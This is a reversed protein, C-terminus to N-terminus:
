SQATLLGDLQDLQMESGMAYVIDNAIFPRSPDPHTHVPQDSQSISVIMAGGQRRLDLDRLSKGIIPSDSGVTYRRIRFATSPDRFLTDVFEGLDPHTAYEAIKLGGVLEPTVVGRAGALQLKKETQRDIARAYVPIDKRLAHASLTIVLNDSSSAVCAVLSRAEMLGAQELIENRTADGELVLFDDAIAQRVGDPDDEVVVVPVGQRAIAAAATSGVRGFGCVIVHDRARSLEKLMKRQRRHDSGIVISFGYEMVATGTYIAAGMGSLLVIVIWLKTPATLEGIPNGFGLTTITIVTVYAADGVSLGTIAYFGITGIVIVGFLAIFGAKLNSPLTV